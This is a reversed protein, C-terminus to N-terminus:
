VADVIALASEYSHVNGLALTTVVIVFEIEIGNPNDAVEPLKVTLPNLVVQPNPSM